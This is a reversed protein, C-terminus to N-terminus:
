LGGRGGYLRRFEDSGRAVRKRVAEESIGITEAIEKYKFGEVFHLVMCVRFKGPIQNMVEQIALSEETVSPQMDKHHDTVTKGTKFTVISLLKKRRSHQWANNTAIKYLWAKFSIDNNTKLINKYAQLFTDQTLDQATDYDGTLRYLYRQIPLQYHEIIESFASSNGDRVLALVQTDDLL